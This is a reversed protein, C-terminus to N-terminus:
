KSMRLAAPVPMDLFTKVDPDTRKLEDRNKQSAKFKEDWKAFDAQLQNFLANDLARYRALTQLAETNQKNAEIAADLRSTALSEAAQAASLQASLGANQWLLWSFASFAAIAAGVALYSKVKDIM